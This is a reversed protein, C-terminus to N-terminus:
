KTKGTTKAPANTGSLDLGSREILQRDMEASREQDTVIHPTVFIFLNTKRREDSTSRFLWGLLPIDGLLPVKSVQRVRDERILGSIVITSRDPVTVTTSVERKAITPTYKLDASGKDVVAEISPNLQMTVEGDPNVHPTFKLKIGVDMRDINQIVDRSTGSGGEITSRLVPINEVVSVSAETNNQARLPVSSLINVDRNQALARLLFPIRPQVLGQADVYTGRAVGIALGQPFVGKTVYSMIDDTEGPRSRGVATTKGEEPIQITSWEVGLDLNKDLAVEAILIEVMVQQPVQDLQEVLKRVYEFDQPAADVILANNPANPEIGIRARQDKEATKALLANLSKAAEEASLYKLFIANLRGYDSEGAVDMAEVIRRLENLQVGTGVLILRNAHTAPILAVDSVDGAGGALREMHQGVTRASSATAKMATMLQAAVQEAAAHKLDVYDVVRAAGPRDLSAIIREIRRLNEATDTIILHNTPGFAEIAGAKGGRVMGELTKKLESAGIHELHIVKTILGVPPAEQGPEVWQGGAVAREPLRVIELLGDREAVTYGSSELISVFLPYVQDAPIREPTVVSVKGSVKEDVVFRRGTMEGVLKALMRIDVQDFSFQVMGATTGAPSQGGSREGAALLALMM